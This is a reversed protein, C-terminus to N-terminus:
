STPASAAPLPYRRGPPKGVTWGLWPVAMLARSVLYSATVTVAWVMAMTLGIPWTLAPVVARLLYDLIFAHCLYVGFSADAFNHVARVLFPRVRIGPRDILRLGILYLIAVIGLSYPVMLPQLVAAAVSPTFHSVKVALVYHLAFGLTTLAAAWLVWRGFRRLWALVEEVHLGVYTGLTFYLLYTIVFRSQVFAGLVPPASTFLLLPDGLVTLWALEFLAAGAVIWHHGKPFSRFLWLLVPFLLYFQFTVLMYYLQYSGTGILADHTTHLLMAWVSERLPLDIAIVYLATWLLYPILTPGFRRRWFSGVAMKQGGGYRFALVLGTLFMFTERTYHLLNLVGDSLFLAFTSPSHYLAILGVAHVAVVGAITIARILDVELLYSRPRTLRNGGRGDALVICVAGRSAGFPVGCQYDFAM